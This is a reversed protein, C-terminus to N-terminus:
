YMEGLVGFLYANIAVFAPTSCHSKTLKAKFKAYM